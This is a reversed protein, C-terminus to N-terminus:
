VDRSIGPSAARIRDRALSGAIVAMPLYSFIWETNVNVILTRTEFIFFVAGYLILAIITRDRSRANYRFGYFAMAGLALMLLALGVAGGYVFAGLFLNHTSNFHETMGPVPFNLESGVGIGFLQRGQTLREAQQWIAFRNDDGRKMIDGWDAPNWAVFAGVLGYLLLLSLARRYHKQLYEIALLATFLAIIPGRGMTWVILVMFLVFAFRRLAFSGAIRNEPPAYLLFIIAVSYLAACLNSNGARGFGKLRTVESQLALTHYGCYLFLVVGSILAAYFYVRFLTPWISPHRYVLTALGCTFLIEMLEFRANSLLLNPSFNESWFVSALNYAWFAGLAAWLWGTARFVDRSGHRVLYFILFPSALYMFNRQMTASFFFYGVLILAFCFLFFQELVSYGDTASKLRM